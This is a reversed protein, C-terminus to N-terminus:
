VAEAGDWIATVRGTVLVRAGGYTQGNPIATPGMQVWNSGGPLPPAPAATDDTETESRAQKLAKERLEASPYGKGGVMKDYAAAEHRQLPNDPPPGKLEPRRPATRRRTKKPVQKKNTM